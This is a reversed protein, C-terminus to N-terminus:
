QLLSLDGPADIDVEGGAFEVGVVPWSAKEIISRAGKDGSLGCLEDFTSRPFVAPVGHVGAYSSAVIVPAAESRFGTILTRLHDASLRPQDCSMLLVGQVDPACVALARMGARISSGMGQRWRDNRVAIVSRSQISVRIREFEAGLIALVPLAGGDSAVRIARNLLTEGRHTLLQKPQGLRRSGGAALIVAAVSMARLTIPEERHHVLFGGQGM